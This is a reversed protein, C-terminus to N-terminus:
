IKITHKKKKQNFYQLNFTVVIDKTYKLEEKPQFVTFQIYYGDPKNLLKGNAIEIEDKNIFQELGNIKVTKKIGQIKVRNNKISYTFGYQPLSLSTYEKCYRLAGGNHQYGKKKLTYITKINSLIQKLLDQKIQSGLYKLEVPVDNMDKDKHTINKIKTNFKWIDNGEIKSWNIIYNKLWKAEIFMMKLQEKQKLSLSNSQIKCTYVKCDMVSHRAITERKHKSIAKNKELRKDEAINM